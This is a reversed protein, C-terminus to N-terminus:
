QETCIIALLSLGHHGHCAMALLSLGHCAITTM